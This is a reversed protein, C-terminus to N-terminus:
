SLPTAPRLIAPDTHSCQRGVVYASAVDNTTAVIILAPRGQYFAADARVDQAQGAGIADLCERLGTITGATGVSSAPPPKLPMTAGRLARLQTEFGGQTYRTRSLRIQLVSPPPTASAAYAPAKAAAAGPAAAAARREGPGSQRDGSSPSAVSSQDATTVPQSSTFMNSGVVAVLVLTAAAGAMALSLRAPRRRMPALLPTVTSGHTGAARQIQEEVLSANIREVLQSPM